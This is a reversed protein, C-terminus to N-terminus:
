FTKSIDGFRCSRVVAFGLLRLSSQDKKRFVVCYMRHEQKVMFLFPLNILIEKIKIEVGHGSVADVM